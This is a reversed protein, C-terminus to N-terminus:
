FSLIETRKGSLVMDEGSDLLNSADESNLFNSIDIDTNPTENLLQMNYGENLGNQEFESNVHQSTTTITKPHRGTEVLNPSVFSPKPSFLPNQPSALFPGMSSSPSSFPSSPTTIETVVPSQMLANDEQGAIADTTGGDQISLLGKRQQLPPIKPGLSLFVLDSVPNGNSFFITHTDLTYISDGSKTRYVQEFQIVSDKFNRQSLILMTRDIYEPHIFKQWPM